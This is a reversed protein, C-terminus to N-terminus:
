FKLRRLEWDMTSWKALQCALSVSATMWSIAAGSLFVTYGIVSRCFDIDATAWDSDTYAVMLPNRTDTMRSYTLRIDATGKLYQYVQTLAKWMKLSPNSAFRSLCITAFSIDMRLCLMLFMLAGLAQRYPYGHMAIKDEQTTPCDAASFRVLPDMPIALSKLSDFGFRAIIENTYREM